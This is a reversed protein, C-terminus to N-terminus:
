NDLQGTNILLDIITAYDLPQYPNGKFTVDPQIYFEATTTVIDSLPFIRNALTSWYPAIKYLEVKHDPVYIPANNQFSFSTNSTLVPPTTAKIVIYPAKTWYYFAYDGISTVSNPIVLPQNNASWGSFAWEGISTVSDPIVLPQNNSEWYYFAYDGISTVSNPIVLPQNNASWGSFAWEGISTVSDPIVLPHNNSTWNRFAWEGISTVSNPIVLPHNNSEWYAFADSGISTVSNPIVLPHNNSEWGSFAWEGISTVSDPIVLPQNNSEWYAFAWKGISTVSEPIILQQNNSEWNYFAYDGISTVSEPIILQQNNSEWNYFAYDGISTVSEPIIVGNENEYEFGKKIEIKSGDFGPWKVIALEIGMQLPTLDAILFGNERKDDFGGVNFIPIPLGVEDKIDGYYKLMEGNILIAENGTWYTKNLLDSYLTNIDGVYIDLYMGEMEYNSAVKQLNLDYLVTDAALMDAWADEFLYAKGAETYRNFAYQYYPDDSEAAAVKKLSTLGFVIYIGLLLITTLKKLYKM